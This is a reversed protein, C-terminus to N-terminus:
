FQITFHSVRSCVRFSWLFEGFTALLLIGCLAHVLRNKHWVVCARWCVIADGLIVQGLCRTLSYFRTYCTPSSDSRVNITLTAASACAQTTARMTLGSKDRQIIDDPITDVLSSTTWLLSPSFLFSDLFDSQYYLICTVLYATTSIFLAFITSCLIIATSRMRGSRRCLGTDM